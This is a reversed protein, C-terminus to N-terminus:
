LAGEEIPRRTPDTDTIEFLPLAGLGRVGRLTAAPDLVDDALHLGPSVGGALVDRVAIVGTAATLQFSSPTRLVATRTRGDRPTLTFTMLYFPQRGALDVEGATIVDDIAADLARPERSVRGRLRGLALRLQSGTFVNFWAFEDLGGRQALRECDATLFPLASVVGPFYPLETQELVSLARRVLRGGRWMAHAEGYWHADTSGDAGDVSLVLDGAAARSFREIGGAHVLLRAGDLGDPALHRPVLNALAPLMGASLVAIRGGTLLACDHLAHYAPGDGSVDVYDAGAALAARGVTDLLLYSPGACNLVMRAGHCFAALSVPDNADVTVPQAGVPGAVAALRREDRSGVRLPGVGLETLMEVAHTGVLGTAGLVAVECAGSM